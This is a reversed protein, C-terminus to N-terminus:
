RVVASLARAQLAYFVAVGLSVVNSLLLVFIVIRMRLVRKAHEAEQKAAEPKVHKKVAKEAAKRMKREQRAGM